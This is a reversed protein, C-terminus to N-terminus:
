AGAEGCSLPMRADEDSTVRLRRGEGVREEMDIKKECVRESKWRGRMRQMAM